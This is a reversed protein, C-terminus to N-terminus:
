MESLVSTVPAMPQDGVRVMSVVSSSTNAHNFSLRDTSSGIKPSPVRWSLAHRDYDDGARGAEDSGLRRPEEGALAEVDDADVVVHPAIEEAVVAARRPSPFPELVGDLPIAVHVGVDTVLGRHIPQEGRVSPRDREFRLHARANRVGPKHLSIVRAHGRGPRTVVRVDNWQGHRLESPLGFGDRRQSSFLWDCNVKGFIYTVMLYLGFILGGLTGGILVMEFPYIFSVWFPVPALLLTPAAASTSTGALKDLQFVLQLLAAWIQGM